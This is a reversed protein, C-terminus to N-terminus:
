KNNLKNKETNPTNICFFLQIKSLKNIFNDLIKKKKDWQVINLTIQLINVSTKMSNKKKKMSLTSRIMIILLTIKEIISNKLM